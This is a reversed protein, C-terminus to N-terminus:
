KFPEFRQPWVLESERREIVGVGSIAARDIPGYVHPWLTGAPIGPPESGAPSAPEFLLRAGLRAPEIRLVLLPESVGAYYARAVALSAEPTASCHVFGDAAFGAPTYSEGRTGARLESRPVLHYVPDARVSQEKWSGGFTTAFPEFGLARGVALSAGNSRLTQYQALSVARM